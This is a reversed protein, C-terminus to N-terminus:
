SIEWIKKNKSCCSVDIKFATMLKLYGTFNLGKCIFNVFESKSVNSNVSYREDWVKMARLNVKFMVTLEPLLYILILVFSYVHM